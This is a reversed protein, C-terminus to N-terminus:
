KIIRKKKIYIYIPLRWKWLNSGRRPSQLQLRSHKRRLDSPKRKCLQIEELLKHPFLLDMLSITISATFQLRRGDKGEWSTYLYVCNEKTKKERSNEKPQNTGESQVVTSIRTELDAIKCANPKLNRNYNTERKKKKKMRNTFFPPFIVTM